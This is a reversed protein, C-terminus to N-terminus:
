PEGEEGSEIHHFEREGLAAATIGAGIVAVALVALVAAIVDANLRPRAAILAGIALVLAAFAVAIWVAAEASATLFVRSIALVVVGVALAGFLPLEIPFMLRNRIQRNTAPDGTARDAWAQV